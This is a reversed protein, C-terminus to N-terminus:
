EQRYAVERIVPNKCMHDCPKIKEYINQRLKAIKCQYGLSENIGIMETEWCFDFNM